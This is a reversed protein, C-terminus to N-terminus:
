YKTLKDLGGLIPWIEQFLMIASALLAFVLGFCTPAAVLAAYMTNEIFREM